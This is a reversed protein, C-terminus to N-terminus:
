THITNIYIKSHTVVELTSSASNFLTIIACANFVM